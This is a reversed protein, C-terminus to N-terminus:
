GNALVANCCSQKARASQVLSCLVDGGLPKVLFGDVGPNEEQHLWNPAHREAIAVITTGCSSARQRLENVLRASWNQLDGDLIVLYPRTQSARAVAQDESNAIAVSCRLRCLLSELDHLDDSEKGLVLVYNQLLEM